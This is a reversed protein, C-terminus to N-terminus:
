ARKRSLIKVALCKGEDRTANRKKRCCFPLSFLFLLRLRSKNLKAESQEDAFFFCVGNASGFSHFHNLQVRHFRACFISSFFVFMRRNGKQRNRTSFICVCVHAHLSLSLSLSPLLSFSYFLHGFCLSLLKEM